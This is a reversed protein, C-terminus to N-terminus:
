EGALAAEAGVGRGAAFANHDAGSRLPSEPVLVWGAVDASVMPGELDRLLMHYGHPYYALVRRDRADRPLGHVFRDMPEKPILQDHEGYMVLLPVRLRPAAALAADMLNVLGWIADVRTEKIVLPDRGLARLMPINDSALIHLGQGTLTLGPMVRAAIWLAVRPVLGMTARGWVAPATLIVGDVDPVPMGAEGTMAVVAVAGGMSEGLLYLPVGPYLRRFVGCAATADAALVARGPWRGHEPAAGFGQQDYAYTAIGDRAWEEAPATFANSYDNFGHLALIVAKVRGAPLWRRLPLHRGDATVFAAAAFRPEGDDRSVAAQAASRLDAAVPRESAPACATSLSILWLGAM